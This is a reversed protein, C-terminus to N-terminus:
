VVISLNNSQQVTTLAHKSATAIIKSNQKTVSFNKLNRQWYKEGYLSSQIRPELLKFKSLCNFSRYQNVILSNNSIGRQWIAKSDRKGTLFSNKFTKSQSSRL